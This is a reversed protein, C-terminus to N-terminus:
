AFSSQRTKSVYPANKETKSSLDLTKLDQKLQQLKKAEKAQKAQEAAREYAPTKKLLNFFPKIYFHSDLRIKENEVSNKWLCSGFFSRFKASKKIKNLVNLVPRVFEFLHFQYINAKPDLNKVAEIWLAYETTSTIYNMKSLIYNEIYTLLEDKIGSRSSANLCWPTDAKRSYGLYARFGKGIQKKTKM